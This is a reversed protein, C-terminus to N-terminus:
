RHAAEHAKFDGRLREVEVRMDAMEDALKNIADTHEGCRTPNPKLGLEREKIAEADERRKAKNMALRQWTLYGVIAAQMGYEIIKEAEM